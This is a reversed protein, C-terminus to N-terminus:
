VDATLDFLKRKYTGRTYIPLILFAYLMQLLCKKMALCTIGRLESLSESGPNTKIKLM